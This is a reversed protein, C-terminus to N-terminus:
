LTKGSVEGRWLKLAMESGFGLIDTRKLSEELVSVAEDILINLKLADVAALSRARFSDSQMIALFVTQTHSTDDKILEVIKNLKKVMANGTKHDGSLKSEGEITAFRIYDSILKSPIIIKKIM